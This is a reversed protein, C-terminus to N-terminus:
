RKDARRFFSGVRAIAKCRSAPMCRTGASREFGAQWSRRSDEGERMIVIRFPDKADEFMLVPHPV